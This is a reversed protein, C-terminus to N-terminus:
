PGCSSFQVEHVGLKVSQKPKLFGLPPNGSVTILNTADLAASRAGSTSINVIGLFSGITLPSQFFTLRASIWSEGGPFLTELDPLLEWDEDHDVDLKEIVIRSAGWTHRSWM